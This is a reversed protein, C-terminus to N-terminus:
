TSGNGKKRIVYGVSARMTGTDILPKVEGDKHRRRKRKRTSEANEKFSGETIKEQILDKQFLGIEKLAQGAPYGQLVAGMTEDVFEQIRSENEDISKRLFPRSPMHETGFENFMAVDCVDAGNEEKAEGHQFGVCVEMGDLEKLARELWEGGQATDSIHIEM